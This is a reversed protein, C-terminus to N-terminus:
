KQVQQLYEYLAKVLDGLNSYDELDDEPFELNYIDELAMIMEVIDISDAELEEFTSEMTIESEDRSLQEALIKRVIEFFEQM